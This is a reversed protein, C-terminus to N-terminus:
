FLTYVKLYPGQHDPDLKYKWNGRKGSEKKVTDRGAINLEKAM